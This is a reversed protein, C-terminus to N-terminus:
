KSKPKKSTRHKEQKTDSVKTKPSHSDRISQAMSKLQEANDKHLSNRLHDVRLNNKRALRPDIGAERLERYSYGRGMRVINGFDRRVIPGDVSRM